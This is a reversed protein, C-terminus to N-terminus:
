AGAPKGKDLGATYPAAMLAVLRGVDGAGASETLFGVDGLLKDSNAVSIVVVPQIGDVDAAQALFSAAPTSLLGLALACTLFRHLLSSV